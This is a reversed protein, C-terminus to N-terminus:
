IINQFGSFDRSIIKSKIENLLNETNQSFKATLKRDKKLDNANFPEFNGLSVFIEPKFNGLFEYRMAIALTHCKDLKEIIKSIGNYFNLPRTDNPLIEGQPFIWLVRNANETLIRASYNLSEIAERPKERVVSFAGLKQFLPLDKLQKEEMMVYFDLKFHRSIQYAVIGDFWSSHNAYIILPINRDLTEFISSNSIQLSNFRRKLLNRNYVAFLENFWRSKNAELM